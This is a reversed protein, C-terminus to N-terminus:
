RLRSTAHGFALAFGCTSWLVLALPPQALVPNFALTLVAGILCLHLFAHHQRSYQERWRGGREITWSFIGGFVGKGVLLLLTAALLGGQKVIDVLDSHTPINMTRYFGSHLWQRYGTGTSGSFAEGWIPSRKITQYAISYQHMRVGRNGDPMEGDLSTYLKVLILAAIALPVLLGAYLMTGARVGRWKVSSEQMKWVLTFVISAGGVLYGTLKGNLLIAGLYFIILPVRVLANKSLAVIFLPCFVIFELEHVAQAGPGRAYIAACGLISALVWLKIFIEVVLGNWERRAFVRYVLFGVLAYLGFVLYSESIGRIFRGILAGSTGFLGFALLAWGAASVAVLRDDNNPRAISHLQQGLWHFFLGVVVFVLPVHKFQVAKISGWAMVAGYLLALATGLLFLVESAVLSRKEQIGEGDLAEAYLHM